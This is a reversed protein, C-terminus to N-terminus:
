DLVARGVELVEDRGLEVRLRVEGLSLEQEPPLDVRLLGGLRGLLDGLPDPPRVAVQDRVEGSPALRELLVEACSARRPEPFPTRPPFRSNGARAETGPMSAPCPPTRLAGPLTTTAGIRRGRRRTRRPRQSGSTHIAGASRTTSNTN